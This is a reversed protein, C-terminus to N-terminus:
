TSSSRRRPGAPNATSAFVFFAGNPAWRPSSENKHRTFTLQKTSPLGERTSVVFIDTYRKAAKWDPVSLTYLLWDGDPSLAPSGAQRILQQDMFTMPRPAQQAGLATSALLATAIWRAHPM